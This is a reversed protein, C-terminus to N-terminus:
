DFYMGREIIYEYVDKNLYEQARLDKNYILKRIKSSSIEIPEFDLFKIKENEIKSKFKKNMDIQFKESDEKRSAGILTVLSFIKEYDKWSDFSLAMDSGVILDVSLDKYKNFLYNLTDITYSKQPRSLEFDSIFIETKECHLDFNLKCMEYRELATAGVIKKGERHPPVRSPMIVLMDPEYVELYKIALKRHGLHPPNFSGGFLGIKM